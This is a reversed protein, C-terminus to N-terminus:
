RVPNLLRKILELAKERLAERTGDNVIVVDARLKKEEDTLQNSVRKKVKGSTTRDRVIIREVRINEDASLLVVRDFLHAMDAEFILASEYFVLLHRALLEELLVSSRAIVVPHVIQNIKKVNAPNSFVAAALFEKNLVGGAYSQEGFAKIIKSRLTKNYQLLEKAITDANLVPYGAEALYSCFLSKGSGIGGTVAIKLHKL